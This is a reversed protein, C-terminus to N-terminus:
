STEGSKDLWMRACASEWRIRRQEMQLNYEKGHHLHHESMIEDTMEGPSASDVIDWIEAIVEDITKQSKRYELTVFDLRDLENELFLKQIQPSVFVTRDDDFFKIGIQFGGMSEVAVLDVQGDANFERKM